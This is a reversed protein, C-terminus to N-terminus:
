VGMSGDEYDWEESNRNREQVHSWDVKGSAMLNRITIAADAPTISSYSIYPLKEPPTFLLTAQEDDLGLLEMAKERVGLRGKGAFRSYFSLEEGRFAGGESEIQEMVWQPAFFQTAAGAICCSTGCVNHEDNRYVEEICVGDRMDFSNIALFNEGSSVVKHPAGAELWVALAELNETNM